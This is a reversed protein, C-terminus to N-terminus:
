RAATPPRISFITTPPQKTKPDNFNTRQTIPTGYKAWIADNFAVLTSLHRAILVVAIDGDQLGYANQNVTFYNNLFALGNGFADPTTTDIV